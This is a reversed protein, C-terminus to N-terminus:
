GRAAREAAVVAAIGDALLTGPRWNLEAAARSTDAVVDMVEGPRPEDSSVVPKSLGAADNVLQAVEAVSASRGSGTNFVGRVGAGLSAMLFEVADGVYLYDRKPRLDQVRVVEVSPDLVQRVISPILFSPHQGPGYINFPRVILLPIGFSQEFFRAAEEALIKTHSYPNAAAVPHDEGIPLRQPQGYVYSSILTLAARNQRCHELVNVTGLVNTHYFARPNQWSEPVYSKAALHFVHGVGEMPLTCNAIDGDRSSHQRVALGRSELAAVLHRGLFGTAGTVLIENKM